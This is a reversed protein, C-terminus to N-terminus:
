PCGNMQNIWKALLQMGKSDIQNSALPPMGNADRRKARRHILSKSADGPVLLKAGSVGLDGAVPDENCLHQMGAATEWQLDLDPRLGAGSRHCQACNTHLYARAREDLSASGTPSPIKAKKTPDPDNQDSFLQSDFMGIKDLTALQNARRGTSDYILDRNLQGTKVGLPGDAAPTHCELCDARSPFVWEQGGVKKTKGAKLLTAETQKDNWEYSYGAWNGDDHRVLLRTEVYKGKLKFSKVLVSGKPFEWGHESDKSTDITEGDPLAIYREKKAGDSWFPANIDYPILGEAPETPDSSKVCGTESLKQPFNNTGPTGSPKSIRHITGRYDIVFLENDLSQAFSSIRHSTDLLEKSKPEGTAQDHVIGWIRGTGFDGYLYVGKLTPIDDGRYVYGGTVSRGQSHSYDVVPDIWPGEDCPNQDYCHTGEKANWGYNGGREVKSIEEWKNQGVDGVWLEGTKADFSWRWPNRLGWAFIEKKGGNGSAFPNSNPIGYPSGSDVDIRIMSGLLTDTNQGNGQPDGGSGGDGWGAYLYGDPGFAIQGGDHNGYPQDLSFLVKESSPDLKNGNSTLQFESIRSTLQGSVDATYSLYVRKKSPWDPHFAMGLLGAENPRDDVRSTIDLWTTTNSTNKQNPFSLIRGAQEILYWTSKDGPAQEMWVPETFNLNPFAPELKISAKSPPRDPATCSSNKPRDDLGFTADAVDREPQDTDSPPEEDTDTQSPTDSDGDEPSDDGDTAGTGDETVTSDKDDDNKKNKNPCGTLVFGSLLLVLFMSIGPSGNRQHMM